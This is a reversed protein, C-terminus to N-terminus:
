KLLKLAESIEEDTEDGPWKGIVANVGTTPTQPEMLEELQERTMRNPSPFLPNTRWEWDAIEEPSAPSISDAYIEHPGTDPCYAVSGNVVVREAMMPALDEINGENLVGPFLSGDDLRLVFKNATLDLMDFRAILRFSIRYSNTDTSM